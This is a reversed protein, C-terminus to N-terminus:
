TIIAHPSPSSSPEARKRQIKRRAYMRKKFKRLEKTADIEIQKLSLGQHKKLYFYVSKYITLDALKKRDYIGYLNYNELFDVSFLQELKCHGDKSEDLMRQRLQKLYQPDTKIKRTVTELDEDNNIITFSIVYDDNQTTEDIYLQGPGAYCTTDMTSNQENAAEIDENDVLEDEMELKCILPEEEFFQDVNEDQAETDELPNIQNCQIKNIKRKRVRKKINHLEHKAAKQIDEPTDGNNLKLDIPCYNLNEKRLVIESTSVYLYRCIRSM